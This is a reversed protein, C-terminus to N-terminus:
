TGPEVGLLTRLRGAVFSRSAYTVHIPDRFYSWDKGHLRCDTRCWIAKPHVVRVNGHGRAWDEFFSQGAELLEPNVIRIAGLQKRYASMRLFVTPQIRGTGDVRPHAGLVVVRDARSAFYEATADLFPRWRELVHGYRGQAESENLLSDEYEFWNQSIVVWDYHKDSAYVQNRIGDCSIDAIEDRFEVGKLVVCGGRTAVDVEDLDVGLAEAIPVVYQQLVSDGIFLVKGRPEPAVRYGAELREFFTSRNVRSVDYAFPNLARFRQPVGNQKAVWFGSVALCVLVTALAPMALGPRTHATRRALRRVPKEVFHFTLVSLPFAIAAVALLAEVPLAEPSLLHLFSLVPQHYLYLPYSVLGVYVLPGLALLRSVATGTGFAIILATGLCPWLAHPGPFPTSKDILFVPMVVLALGALAIGARLRPRASLSGVAVNPLVLVMLAGLLLEFARYHPLFYAETPSAKSAHVALAFSVVLLVAAGSWLVTARRPWALLLFLAPWVLYFQEEVGLSWLHLLPRAKETQAFYDLGNAYLINLAGISAFFTQKGLNDFTKNTFFLGGLVLTGALTIILAPALRAIRRKYFALFSFRGAGAEQAVLSTILFGSIVFFVDVGVFGGSVSGFGAHYLVVSLVAIARLGDIDARYEM